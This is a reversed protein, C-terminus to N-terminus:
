NSITGEAIGEALVIVGRRRAQFINNEILTNHVASLRLDGSSLKRQGNLYLTNQLVQVDTVTGGFDGVAGILLGSRGNHRVVNNRIIINSALAGAKLAGVAIGVDSRWVLN